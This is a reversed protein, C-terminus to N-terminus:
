QRAVGVEILQRPSYELVPKDLAALKDQLLQRLDEVSTPDGTHIVFPNTDANANPVVDEIRYRWDGAKWERVVRWNRKGM